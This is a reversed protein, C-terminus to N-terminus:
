EFVDSIELFCQILTHLKDLQGKKKRPSQIAKKIQNLFRRDQYYVM